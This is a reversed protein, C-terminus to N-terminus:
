LSLRATKIHKRVSMTINEHAKITALFIYDRRVASAGVDQAKGEKGNIGM